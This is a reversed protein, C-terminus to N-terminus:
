RLEHLRKLEVDAQNRLKLLPGLRLQYTKRVYVAILDRTQSKLSTKTLKLAVESEVTDVPM